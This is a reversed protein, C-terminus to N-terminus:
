YPQDDGELSPSSTESCEDTSEAQEEVDESIPIEPLPLCEIAPHVYSNLPDLSGLFYGYVPLWTMVKSLDPGYSPIPYIIKDPNPLPDGMIEQLIERYNRYAQQLLPHNGEWNADNIWAADYLIYTKRRQANSLVELFTVLQEKLIKKSEGDSNQQWTDAICVIPTLNKELCELVKNQLAKPTPNYVTREMASGILAFKAHADLAMQAAIPAPFSDAETDLLIETGLVLHDGRFHEHVPELFSFPLVVQLQLLPNKQAKLFTEISAIAKEVPQTARCRVLIVPTNKSM